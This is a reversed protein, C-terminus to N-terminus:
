RKITPFELLDAMQVLEALSKAQMKEMVHSRQVKVTPESTGLAAAIQKNLLGAV